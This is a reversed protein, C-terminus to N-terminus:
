LNISHAFHRSLYIEDIYEIAYKTSVTLSLKEKLDDNIDIEEIAM